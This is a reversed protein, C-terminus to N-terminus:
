NDEGSLYPMLSRVRRGASEIGHHAEGKIREQLKKQGAAAEAMWKEAFEATNIQEYIKKVTKKVEPSM